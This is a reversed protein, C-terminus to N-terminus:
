APRSAKLGFTRPKEREVVYVRVPDGKGKLRVPDLTRVEFLGSVHRYTDHTILVSGPPAASEVRSALNIADGMATYESGAASGVEGLAVLGTNLGVRVNYGSVGFREKVTRAYRQAAQVLALGCRVARLADDERASPAGFFALLGDGM